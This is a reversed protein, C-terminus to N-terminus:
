SVRRSRSVAAALIEDVMARLEAAARNSDGPVQKAIHREAIQELIVALRLEALCLYWEFHDSPLARRGFYSDVVEHKTFFGEFATLGRTIPNPRKGAEDWFMVLTALDALPDGLTSMEWDLVAVIRTPDDADTIVNDIRYDGHILCALPSTPISASLADSIRDVQPLDRTCIQHFQRQWRSVQRELYGNPRGLDSVGAAEVDVDHLDALTYVLNRSLRQMTEASLAGVESPERLVVGEVRSMLYFPADLVASDACIDVIKPVPVASGALAAMVRAERMVDHAGRVVHGLPPRRLIWNSVGDSVRYTLNSRGGPILEVDIDAASTLGRRALYRALAGPDVGMPAAASPGNTV